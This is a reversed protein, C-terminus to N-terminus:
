RLRSGDARTFFRVEGRGHSWTTTFTSDPSHSPEM